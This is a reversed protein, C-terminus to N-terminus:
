TMSPGSASVESFASAVNAARSLSEDACLLRGNAGEAGSRGFSEGAHIFLAATTFPAM